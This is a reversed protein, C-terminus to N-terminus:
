ILFCPWYMALNKGIDGFGNLGLSEFANGWGDINPKQATNQTTGNAETGM